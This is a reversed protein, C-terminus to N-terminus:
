WFIEYTVTVTYFQGFDPLFELVVDYYYEYIPDGTDVTDYTFNQQSFVLYDSANVVSVHHRHYKKGDDGDTAGTLTSNFYTWAKLKIGVSNNWEFILADGTDYYVVSGAVDWSGTSNEYIAIARLGQGYEDPYDWAALVFQASRVPQPNAIIFIGIIAIVSIAAFAKRNSM